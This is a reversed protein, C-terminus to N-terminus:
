AEVQRSRHLDRTASAYMTAFAVGVWMAAPIAGVVLLIVGVWVVFVGLMAGGFLTWFRGQTLRWSERVAEIPGLGEDVVLFSVFSLRVAVFIGPLILLLLGVVTLLGVLVPAFAASWYNHRFPAFLDDAHPKEGRAAKLLAFSAGVQIPGAVFLSYLQGIVEGVAAGSENRAWVLQVVVGAAIVLVVLVGILLLQRWFRKLMEWAHAYSAGVRPPPLLVPAPAETEQHQV